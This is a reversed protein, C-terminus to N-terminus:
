PKVPPVSPLISKTMAYPTGDPRISGFPVYGHKEWFHMADPNKINTAVFNRVGETLMADEWTDVVQSGLRKGKIPVEIDKLVATPEFFINSFGNELAGWFKFDGSKELRQTNRVSAGLDELSLPPAGKTVGLGEIAGNMQTVARSMRARLSEASSDVAPLAGTVEDM